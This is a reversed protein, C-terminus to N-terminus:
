EKGSIKRKILSGGQGAAGRAGGTKLHHRLRGMYYRIGKHSQAGPSLWVALQAGTSGPQKGGAGRGALIEELGADKLEALGTLVPRVEQVLFPHLDIVSVPCIVVESDHALLGINRRNFYVVAFDPHSLLTKEPVALIVDYPGSLSEALEWASRFGAPAARLAGDLMRAAESVSTATERAPEASVVLLRTRTNGNM